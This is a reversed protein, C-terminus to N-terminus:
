RSKNRSSFFAPYCVNMAELSIRRMDTNSQVTAKDKDQLSDRLAPTVRKAIEKCNCTCTSSIESATM